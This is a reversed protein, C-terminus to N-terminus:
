DRTGLIESIGELAATSLSRWERHNQRPDGVIIKWMRVGCCKLGERLLTKKELLNHLNDRLLGGHCKLAGATATKVNKGFKM